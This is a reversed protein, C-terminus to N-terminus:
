RHSCLVGLRISSRWASHTLVRRNGTELLGDIISRAVSRYGPFESTGIVFPETWTRRQREADTYFISVTYSM